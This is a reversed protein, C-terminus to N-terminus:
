QGRQVLTWHGCLACENLLLRQYNNPLLLTNRECYRTRLDFSHARLRACKWGNDLAKQYNKVKKEKKEKGSGGRDDQVRVYCARVRSLIGIKLFDHLFHTIM